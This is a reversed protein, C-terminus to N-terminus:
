RVLLPQMHKRRRVTDHKAQDCHCLGRHRWYVSVPPVGNDEVTNVRVEIWLFFLGLFQVMFVTVLLVGYTSTEALWVRVKVAGRKEVGACGFIGVGALRSAPVPLEGAGFREDNKLGGRDWRRCGVM